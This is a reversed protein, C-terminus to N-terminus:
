SGLDYVTLFITAHYAGGPQPLAPLVTGGLRVFLRGNPGLTTILPSRPDFVVGRPPRGHSFDAFGDQPGFSVTLLDGSLSVLAAPLVFEVRVSADAPGEIQFLGARLPDHAPVSSPVGPLVTGFSLDRVALALLASPVIRPPRVQRPVRVQADLPPARWPLVTLAAVVSVALRVGM